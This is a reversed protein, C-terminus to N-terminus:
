LQPSLLVIFNLTCYFITISFAKLHRQEEHENAYIGHKITSKDPLGTKKLMDNARKLKEPFLIKDRYQELSKEIRVIQM